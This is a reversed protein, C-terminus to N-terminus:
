MSCYFRWTPKISFNKTKTKKKFGQSIPRLIYYKISVQHQPSSTIASESLCLGRQPWCKANIQSVILYVSASLLQWSTKHQIEWRYLIRRDSAGECLTLWLSVINHHLFTSICFVSKPVHLTRTPSNPKSESQQLTSKIWLRPVERGRKEEYHRRAHTHIAKFMLSCFLLFFFFHKAHYLSNLSLVFPARCIHTRCISARM